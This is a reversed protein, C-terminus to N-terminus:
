VFPNVFTIALVVILSYITLAEMFALSLLLISHIKGKAELQKAHGEIAKWISNRIQRRKHLDLGLV